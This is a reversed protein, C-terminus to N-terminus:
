RLHLVRERVLGHGKYGVIEHWMSQFSVGFCTSPDLGTWWEGIRGAAPRVMVAARRRHRQVWDEPQVTVAVTQTRGSGPDERRSTWTAPWPSCSGLGKQWRLKSPALATMTAWLHWGRSSVLSVRTRVRGQAPLSGLWQSMVDRYGWLKVAKTVGVRGPAM